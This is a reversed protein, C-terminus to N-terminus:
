QSGRIPANLKSKSQLRVAGINVRDPVDAPAVAIQALSNQPYATVPNGVHGSDIFNGFSWM